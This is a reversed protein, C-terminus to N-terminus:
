SSIKSTHKLLRKTWFYKLSQVGSQVLPLDVWVNNVLQCNMAQLLLTIQIMSMRGKPAIFYPTSFPVQGNLLLLLKQSLTLFHTDFLEFGLWTYYFSLLLQFFSFPGIHLSFPSGLFPFTLTSLRWVQRLNKQPTPPSTVHLFELNVKFDWLNNRDNKWQGIGKSM